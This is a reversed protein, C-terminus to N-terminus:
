QIFKNKSFILLAACIIGIAFLLLSGTKVFVIFGLLTLSFAILGLKKRSM